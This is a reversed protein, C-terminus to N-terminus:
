LTTKKQSPLLSPDRNYSEVTADLLFTPNPSTATPTILLKNKQHPRGFPGVMELRWEVLHFPVRKGITAGNAPHLSLEM